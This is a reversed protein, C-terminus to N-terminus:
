GGIPHSHKVKSMRAMTRIWEDAMLQHGAYTPHVGDWIWYEAPARRCAADFVPQFHVTVASYKVALEAVIGQRKRMEAHHKGWDDKYAGVALLFPECLILQVSPLSAVTRALLQDYQRNFEEASVGHYYDNIGVAISIVDPALAIADDQWRASLDKVGNGSCGRNFFTLGRKPYSAGFLAAIIFVYGHGLIHNPDDSRGRNGDTISDGQFLIRSNAKFLSGYKLSEVAKINSGRKGTMRKEGRKKIFVIAFLTVSVGPM